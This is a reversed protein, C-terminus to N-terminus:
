NDDVSHRHAQEKRLYAQADGADPESKPRDAVDKANSTPARYGPPPETLYKRPPEEGTLVVEDPKKQGGLKQTVYEGTSGLCIPSGGLATCGNGQDDDVVVTEGRGKMMEEKSLEARTNPTIQPAPRRSDAQARRRAIVDPDTPWDQPHGADAAKPPPLDMKPPVVLPARARYDIADQEKDAQMGFFGLFSNFTNTDEFAKAPGSSFAGILLAAGAAAACTKQSLRLRDFAMSDGKEVYFPTSRRIM